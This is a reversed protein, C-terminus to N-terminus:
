IERTAIYLDDFLEKINVKGLIGPLERVLIANEGYEEFVIGLKNIKEM